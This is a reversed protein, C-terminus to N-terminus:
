TTQPEVNRAIENPRRVSGGNTSADDRKRVPPMRITSAPRQSARRAPSLQGPRAAQFAENTSPNSSTRIPLPLTGSACCRSEVPTADSPTLVTGSHIARKSRTM